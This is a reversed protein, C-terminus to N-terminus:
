SLESQDCAAAGVQSYIERLQKRSTVGLKGYINKNHFKLTNEKINLETMIEKTSRGAIYRDFILRETKTLTGLSRDLQEWVQETPVAAGSASPDSPEEPANEESELPLVMEAAAMGQETRHQQSQVERLKANEQIIWQLGLLFMESIIYSVSLSEFDIRVLQEIFWVGINSFVAIGLLVTHFTAELRRKAAVYLIASVTAACYGLLYFLYLCHWDGYTKNLVSVGNVTSFSVEEYYITSYGPSAAIFFMMVSLGLLLGVLLRGCKIGSVNLIIMLMAMPLFVSGLYAIRNALLAEELSGSVALAVYGINVVLVSTFLLLFWIDKKQIVCCYVVLMVLALLSAGGYIVSASAAKEGVQGCGALGLMLQLLILCIGTKKM